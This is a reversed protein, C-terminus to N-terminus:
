CCSHIIRSYISLPIEDRTHQKCDIFKIDGRYRKCEVLLTDKTKEYASEPLILRFSFATKEFRYLYGNLKFNQSLLKLIEELGGIARFKAILEIQNPQQVFNYLRERIQHYDSITNILNAGENSVTRIIWNKFDYQQDVGYGIELVPEYTGDERTYLSAFDIRVGKTALSAIASFLYRIKQASFSLINIDQKMRNIKFTVLTPYFLNQGTLLLLRNIDSGTAMRPASISTYINGNSLIGSLNRINTSLDGSFYNLAPIHYNSLWEYFTMDKNDLIPPFYYGITYGESNLLSEGEAISLSTSATFLMSERNLRKFHELPRNEFIINSNASDVFSLRQRSKAIIDGIRIIDSDKSACIYLRDQKSSFQSQIGDKKLLEFIEDLTSHM